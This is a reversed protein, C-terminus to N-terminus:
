AQVEADGGGHNWSAVEAPGHSLAPLEYIKYHRLKAWLPTIRANGAGVCVFGNHNVTMALLGHCVLLKGVGLGEQSQCHNVRNM